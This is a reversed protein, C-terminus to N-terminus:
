DAAGMVTFTGGTIGNDYVFDPASLEIEVPAKDVGANDPVDAASAFAAVSLSAAVMVAAGIAFIRKKSIKM